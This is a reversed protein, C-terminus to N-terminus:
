IMAFAQWLHETLDYRSGGGTFVQFSLFVDTELRGVPRAALGKKGLCKRSICKVDLLMFAIAEKM